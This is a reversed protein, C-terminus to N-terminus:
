EDCTLLMLLLWCCWSCWCCWCCCCFCGLPLVFSANVVCVFWHCNGCWIVPSHSIFLVGTCYRTSVPLLRVMMLLRAIFKYLSTWPLIRGNLCFTIVASPLLACIMPMFFTLIWIPSHIKTVSTSMEFLRMLVHMIPMSMKLMRGDTFFTILSKYVAMCVDVLVNFCLRCVVIGVCCFVIKSCRIFLMSMNQSQLWKSWCDNLKLPFFVFMFYWFLVTAVCVSVTKSFLWEVVIKFWVVSIVSLLFSTLCLTKWFLLILDVDSNCLSLSFSHLAFKVSDDKQMAAISAELLM